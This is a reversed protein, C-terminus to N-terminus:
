RQQAAIGTRQRSVLRRAVCVDSGHKFRQKLIGGQEVLLVPGADSQKPQKRL